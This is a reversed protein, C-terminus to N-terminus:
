AHSPAHLLNELFELAVSQSNNDYADLSQICLHRVDPSAVQAALFDHKLSPVQKPDIYALDPTVIRVVGRELCLIAYLPFPRFQAYNRFRFPINQELRGDEEMVAAFDRRNVPHPTHVLMVIRRAYRRIKVQGFRSAIGGHTQYAQPYLWRHMRRLIRNRPFVYGRILPLGAEFYDEERVPRIIFIDDNFYLFRDALGPIRHIVTDISRSNFTPLANEYGRFITRHDVIEVGLARRRAPNLWLPCQNDTVLHITGIWPANKRLLSICYYIEGNSAFRTPLYTDAEAGQTIQDTQHLSRKAAHAPDSGDVWPIIADVM